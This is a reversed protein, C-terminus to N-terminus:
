EARIGAEKALAQYRRVERTMFQGFEDSSGGLAKSLKARVLERGVGEFSIGWKSDYDPAAVDHYRSNVDRIEDASATPM